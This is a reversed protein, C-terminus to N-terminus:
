VDTPDYFAFGKKSRKADYMALDAHRMLTTPDEGDDPYMAIGISIGVDLHQSSIDFSKNMLNLLRNVVIVTNETTNTMPLLVAFEDGGLRAVMSDDQRHSLSDSKRLGSQLRSAVQKLLADGAAHGLSDNVQKFRNLDMMLLAFCIKQRQSILITQEIRDNFLSRNPLGTLEDKFAMADLKLYLEKLETTMTNFSTALEHIEAVGSVSVQEGLTGRDNLVRHIQSLLKRLPRITMKQIWLLILMGALLIASGAALLVFNRARDLDDNLSKMDSAM